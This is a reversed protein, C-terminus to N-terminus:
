AINEMTREAAGRPPSFAALLTSIKVAEVVAKPVVPM